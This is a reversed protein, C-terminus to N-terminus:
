FPDEVGEETNEPAFVEMGRIQSKIRDYETLVTRKSECQFCLRLPRCSSSCNALRSRWIVKEPKDGQAKASIQILVAQSVLM